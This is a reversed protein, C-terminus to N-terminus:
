HVFRLDTGTLQFNAWYFPNAWEPHSYDKILAIKSRRLSNAVSYGKRLYSYFTKYLETSSQNDADWLSFIVAKTDSFLFRRTLSHTGAMNLSKGFGTSCGELIALEPNCQINSENSITRWPFKFGLVGDRTKFTHGIIHLIHKPNKQNFRVLYNEKLHLMLERNYPLTKDGFQNAWIDINLPFSSQKKLSVFGINPTLHITHEQGFFHLKAWNKVNRRSCVLADFPIQELYEDPCIIVNKTQIYNLKLKKFIHSALEEYHNVEGKTSAAQLEEINKAILKNLDSIRHLHVGHKTITINLITSDPLVQYDVISCSNRACWKKIQRVKAQTIQKNQFITKIYPKYTRIKKKTLSQLAENKILKGFVHLENWLLWNNLASESKKEGFAIKIKQNLEQNRYKNQSSINLINQQLVSQNKEHLFEFQIQRDNIIQRFYEYADLSEKSKIRNLARNNLLQNSLSCIQKLQEARGLELYKTGLQTLAISTYIPNRSVIFDNTRSAILLNLIQEYERIFISDSLNLRTLMVTTLKNLALKNKNPHRDKRLIRLEKTYYDLSKDYCLKKPLHFHIQNRVIDNYNNGLRRYVKALLAENAALLQIKALASENIYISQQYKKQNHALYASQLLFEVEQRENLAYRYKKDIRKFLEEARVTDQKKLECFLHFNDKEFNFQQSKVLPILANAKDFEGYEAFRYAYEIKNSDNLKFQNQVLASYALNFLGYDLLRDIAQIDKFDFLIRKLHATDNRFAQKNVKSDKKCSFLIFSMALLVSTYKLM